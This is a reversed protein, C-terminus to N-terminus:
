LVSLWILVPLTDLRFTTQICEQAAQLGLFGRRQHDAVRHVDAGRGAGLVDERQIRLGALLFPLVLRFQGVVIERGHTATQIAAAHRVGVAFYEDATEIRLQGREIGVGALLQPDGRYLVVLLAM